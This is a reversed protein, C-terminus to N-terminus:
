GSQICRTSCYWLKKFQKIKYKFRYFIITVKIKKLSVCFNGKGIIYSLVAFTAASKQDALKAGNGAIIVHALPTDGYVRADGGYYLSPQTEKATFGESISHQTNAYDTLISHDVNVGVIVAQSTILRSKAFAAM